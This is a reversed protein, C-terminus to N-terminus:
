GQGGLFPANGEDVAVETGHGTKLWVEIVRELITIPYGKEMQLAHPGVLVPIAGYHGGVHRSGHCLLLFGEVM